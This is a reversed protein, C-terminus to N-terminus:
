VSDWGHPRGRPGFSRDDDTAPEEDSEPPTPSALNLLECLADIEAETLPCHGAEAIEMEAPSEGGCYPEIEERIRQLGKVLTALERPTFQLAPAPIVVLYPGGLYEREDEDPKDAIGATLYDMAEQETDFLLPPHDADRTLCFLTRTM